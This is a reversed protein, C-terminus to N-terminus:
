KENRVLIVVNYSTMVYYSEDCKHFNISARNINNGNVKLQLFFLRLSQSNSVLLPKSFRSIWDM